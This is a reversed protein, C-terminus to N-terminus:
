VLYNWKGEGVYEANDISFLTIKNSLKDLNVSRGSISDNSTTFASVSMTLILAGVLLTKDIRNYYNNKKTIFKILM